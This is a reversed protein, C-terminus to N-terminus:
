FMVHCLRLISTIDIDHSTEAWAKGVKGIKHTCTPLGPVLVTGICIPHHADFLTYSRIFTITHTDRRQATAPFTCYLHGQEALQEVVAAATCAVFTCHSDAAAALATEAPLQYEGTAM